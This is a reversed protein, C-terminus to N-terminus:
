VLPIIHRIIIQIHTMNPGIQTNQYGQIQPWSKTNLAKLYRHYATIPQRFPTIQWPGRNQWIQAIKPTKPGIDLYQDNPWRIQINRDVGARHPYGSQIAMASPRIQSTPTYKPHWIQITTIISMNLSPNPWTNTQTDVCISPKSRARNPGCRSKLTGYKAMIPPIQTRNSPHNPHGPPGYVQILLHIKAM